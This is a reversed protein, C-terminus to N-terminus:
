THEELKDISTRNKKEAYKSEKLKECNNYVLGCVKELSNIHFNLIKEYSNHYFIVIKQFLFIRINYVIM